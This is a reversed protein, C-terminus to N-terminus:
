PVLGPFPLLPCRAGRRSTPTRIRRARRQRDFASRQRVTGVSGGGSGRARLVGARLRAGRSRCQPPVLCVVCARLTKPLGAALVPASVVFHGGWDHAAQEHPYDSTHHPRHCPVSLRLPPAAAAVAAMDTNAARRARVMSVMSVVGAIARAGGRAASRLGALEPAGAAGRIGASRGRRGAQQGPGGVAGGAYPATRRAALASGRHPAARLPLASGFCRQSSSLTRANSHPSPRVHHRFRVQRM